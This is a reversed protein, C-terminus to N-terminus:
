GVLENSLCSLLSELFLFPPNMHYMRPLLTIMLEAGGRGLWAVSRHRVDRRGRKRSPPHSLMTSLVWHSLVCFASSIDEQCVPLEADM